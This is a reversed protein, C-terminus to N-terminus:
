LGDYPAVGKQAAYLEICRDLSMLCNAYDCLEAVELRSVTPADPVVVAAGCVM